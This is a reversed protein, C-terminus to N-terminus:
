HRPPIRPNFLDSRERDAADEVVQRMKEFWLQPAKPKKPRRSSRCEQSGRLAFELQGQATKM